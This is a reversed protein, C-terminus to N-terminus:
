CDGTLKRVFNEVKTVLAKNRLSKEIVNVIASGVVVGDVNMNKIQKIQDSNSIGFGVVVPKSSFNKIKSVNEKIDRPMEKRVGTVGTRSVYYIFGRSKRCIAKIRKEPSTPAILFILEIGKKDTEEKIEKSEELPLDPVILGAIEADSALKAFKKIGLKYIPNYYSFLILPIRVKNKIRELLHLIKTLSVGQLLARESARQITTGDALPDSFPVGLELIDVGAAPLRLILQETVKLNPDGATIFGVFVKKGKKKLEVFKKEIRNKQM